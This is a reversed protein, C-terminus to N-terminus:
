RFNEVLMLDSGDEDYQVYLLSRRDPAVALGYHVRGDPTALTEVIGTAFSLFRISPPRGGTGSAIYYIGEGTVRWGGTPFMGDIVQVSEGGSMPARWVSYQDPFGRAHYLHEGDLSEISVDSADPVLVAEGGSAPVKWTQSRDERDSQFYIWRGDRSWEPNTDRAPHTTIQRVAGGHGSVVYVDRNGSADSHFVIQEGDPSWRPRHTLPGGFSTLQTPRTGDADCV